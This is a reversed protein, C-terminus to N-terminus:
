FFTLIAVIYTLKLISLIYNVWFIWLLKFMEQVINSSNQNTYIFELFICSNPAAIM